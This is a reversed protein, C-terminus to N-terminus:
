AHAVKEGGEHAVKEGRRSAIHAMKESGIHAVKESASKRLDAIASLSNLSVFKAGNSVDAVQLFGKAALRSRASIAARRTLGTLRAIEAASVEEREALSGRTRQAVAHVLLCRSVMAAFVVREAWTSLLEAAWRPLVNFLVQEAIARRSLRYTVTRRTRGRPAKQRGDAEIWRREILATIHRQATRRPLCAREAIRDLPVFVPGHNSGAFWAVAALTQAACGVDRCAARLLPLFDGTQAPQHLLEAWPEGDARLIVRKAIELKPTHNM